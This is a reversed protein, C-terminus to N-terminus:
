TWPEASADLYVEIPGPEAYRFGQVYRVGLLKVVQAEAQTQVGEAVVDCNLSAAVSTAATLFAVGGEQESGARRVLSRDVKILSPQLHELRTFNSFGAGFDDIAIRMGSARLRNLNAEAGSNEQLELSETVEVVLQSAHQALPGDLIERVLSDEALERASLNMAVFFDSQQAELWRPLEQSLQRVVIRGLSVIQGSREAFTIFDGATVAVGDQLWRVLVEVGAMRGGDAEFIPQYYLCFEGHRLAGSLEHRMRAKSVAQVGISENFREYRDGGLSKAAYMALDACLLLDDAEAADEPATAVGIAATVHVIADGARIPERVAALLRDAVATIRTAEVDDCLLVGFEDGGLRGVRDGRRVQQALREVVRRLVADGLHHGLQDNVGKFGDLDIWLLAVQGGAERVRAIERHTADLLSIRSECGTLSDLSALESNVRDIRNLNWILAVLLAACAVLWLFRSLYWGASFRDVANLNVIAEGLTLLALATLWRGILAGSRSCYLTVVVCGVCIAILVADLLLAVATKTGDSEVLDPLPDLPLTALLVTLLIGALPALAAGWMDKRTLSPRRHTRRDNDIMWASVAIGIPFAFHWSYYLDVASQVSGLLRDDGIVAGPFVLPFFLLVGTMYGFTGAVMLYGRRGTSRAHGVMLLSTVGCIFAALLAHALAIAPLPQWQVPAATFAAIVILAYCVVLAGMWIRQGTSLPRPGDLSYFAQAM